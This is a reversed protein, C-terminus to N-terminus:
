EEDRFAPRLLDRLRDLADAMRSKVTGVPIDLVEAIERFKLGEYHRLVVGARTRASLRDLARRVHEAREHQAAVAPPSAGSSVPERRDPLGDLSATPHRESRRREDLCLNAAIRWLFTSLRAGHRYSGAREFLRTLATQTLDEARHPDGTMRACLRYIPGQWRRVILGFARRDGHRQLRLMADEDSLSLASRQAGDGAADAPSGMAM